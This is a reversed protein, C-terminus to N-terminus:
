SSEISVVWDALIRHLHEDSGRRAFPLEPVAYVSTGGPGRVKIAGIDDLDRSVTAQTAAIGDNALLEVLETQREIAHAGLLEIIRHQRRTKSVAM